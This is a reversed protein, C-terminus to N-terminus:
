KKNKSEPVAKVATCSDKKNNPPIFQSKINKKLLTSSPTPSAISANETEIAFSKVFRFHAFAFHATHCPNETCKLCNHRHGAPYADMCQNLVKSFKFFKYRPYCKHQQEAYTKTKFRNIKEYKYM